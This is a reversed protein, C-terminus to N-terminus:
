TFSSRQLIYEGPSVVLREFKLEQVALARECCAHFLGVLMLYHVLAPVRRASIDRTVMKCGLGSAAVGVPMDKNVM